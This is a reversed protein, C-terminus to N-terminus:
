KRLIIYSLGGYLFIGLLALLHTIIVFPIAESTSIGFKVLCMVGVAEYVGLNGPVVSIIVSLNVLAIFIISTQWDLEPFVNKLLVYIASAAIFWSLFSLLTGTLLRLNSFQFRVNKMIQFCLEKKLVLLIITALIVTVIILLPVLFGIQKSILKITQPASLFLFFILITTDIIREFIVSTTALTLSGGKKKFWLPRFLEGSRFPMLTLWLMSWGHGAFLINTTFNKHGQM